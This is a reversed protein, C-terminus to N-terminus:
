PSLKNVVPQVRETLDKCSLLRLWFLTEAEWYNFSLVLFQNQHSQSQDTGTRLDNVGMSPIGQSQGQNSLITDVKDLARPSPAAFSHDRSSLWSSHFSPLVTVSIWKLREESPFPVPSSEQCDPAFHGMSAKTKLIKLNPALRCLARFPLFICFLRSM